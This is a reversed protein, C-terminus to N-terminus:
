PQMEMAEWGGGLAKYIAILSVILTQESQVRQDQATYLSRQNDLVTLFDVLGRVYLERSLTLAVQSADVAEVLRQQRAHEEGYAVLANETEELAGLVTQEYRALAAEQGAEQVRINARIRGGAFIPWVMQPGISSFRSAGTFVKGADTETAAVGLTGTLSFRPFLDATAVGVRARAAALEREDPQSLDAASGLVMREPAGVLTADDLGMLIVVRFKGDPAKARPLGKFLRVAWQVGAVGRVRYLDNETLARIEDVYQTNPDMVWIDADTVDMIQSATRLVVGAFISSQNELLFSAFAIAFILGLYKARDETLMKLAVFNM